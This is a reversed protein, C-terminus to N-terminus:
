LSRRASGSCPVCRVTRELLPRGRPADGCMTALCWWLVPTRRGLAKRPPSSGPEASGGRFELREPCSRSGAGAIGLLIWALPIPLFWQFVRYLMVGASIEASYQGGTLAPSCRSTCSSPSAPAARRSPCSRSSSCSRSSPSSRARPCSRPRCAATGSRPSSSSSGLRAELDGVPLLPCDASDSREASRRASISCRAWSTPRATGGSVRSSGASWERGSPASGARSRKPASSARDSRSRRHVPRRRLHGRALIISERELTSTERSEAFVLLMAGVVGM